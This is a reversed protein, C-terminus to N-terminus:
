KKPFHWNIIEGNIQLTDDHITIAFPEGTLNDLPIHKMGLHYRLALVASKATEKHQILPTLHPLRSRLLRYGVPNELRRAAANTLQRYHQELITRASATQYSPRRVVEIAQALHNAYHQLTQHADYLPWQTVRGGLISALINQFMGGSSGGGFSEQFISKAALPHEAIDLFMAARLAYEGHLGNVMSQDMLAPISDILTVFESSGALALENGYRSYFEALQDLDAITIMTQVLGNLESSLQNRIAQWLHIYKEQATPINGEALLKAIHTLEIKYLNQTSLYNPTQTNLPTLYIGNVAQVPQATIHQRYFDLLKAREAQCTPTLLSDMGPLTYDYVHDQKLRDYWGNPVAFCRSDIGPHDSRTKDVLRYFAAVHAPPPPQITIATAHFATKPLNAVLLVIFIIVAINGVISLLMLVFRALFIRRQYAPYLCLVVGLGITLKGWADFGITGGFVVLNLIGGILFIVGSFVM